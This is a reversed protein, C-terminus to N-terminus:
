NLKERTPTTVPFLFIANSRVTALLNFYFVDGGGCNDGGSGCGVLVLMVWLWCWRWYRGGEVGGGRWVCVGYYEVFNGLSLQFIDDNNIFINECLSYWFTWM